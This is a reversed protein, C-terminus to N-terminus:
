RKRIIFGNNIRYKTGRAGKFKNGPKDLSHKLKKSKLMCFLLVIGVMIFLVSLFIGIIYANPDIRMGVDSDLSSFLDVLPTRATSTTNVLSVSQTVM